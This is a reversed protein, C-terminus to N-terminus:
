KRGGNISRLSREAEAEWAGLDAAAAAKRPRVPRSQLYRELEAREVLLKNRAGRVLAIDGKQGANLLADHGIGYAELTQKATLFERSNGSATEALAAAQARKAAAQAELAAAEAKIAEILALHANVNLTRDTM